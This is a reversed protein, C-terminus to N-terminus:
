SDMAICSASRRSCQNEPSGLCPSPDAVSRDRGQSRGCRCSSSASRSVSATGAELDEESWGIRSELHPRGDLPARRANLPACSISRSSPSDPRPETSGLIRLDIHNPSRPLLARVCCEPLYRSTFGAYRNLPLIVADSQRRARAYLTLSSMSALSTVFFDVIGRAVQIFELGESNAYCM